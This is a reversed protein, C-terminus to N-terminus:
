CSRAAAPARGPALRRDRDRGAHWGEGALVYAPREGSSPSRRKPRRLPHRTEVQRREHNARDLEQPSRARRAGPGRDPDARAGRRGPVPARRREAAAGARLRGLARQGQGPDVGAVAMLARLGPKTTSALARLGRRVLTRNEGVCRCSTPSRRSRWWTSTRSSRASASARARAAGGAEGRAAGGAAGAGLKYAVATACLEPCPYGCLARTCSRRGRCCATPARRTTTPSWWRWARAGARPAVEEVATIACDVTVLLRTGRAALRRVTAANLGYGDSPATPCTATSTRGSRACRACSCRRRASATSTTTATSRSGSAAARRARPDGRGGREIGAFAAPPHEEDAALFARARPRSPWGAACWCRRSRGASASSASAPARRRRRRVTPSRSAAASPVRALSRGARSPVARRRAPRRASREAPACRPPQPWRTRPAHGGPLGARHRDARGPGRVARGRHRDGKRRPDRLASVKVGYIILGVVIAGVLSGVFAGVIGGWFRDPLFITFHWIALGMMVWGLMGM